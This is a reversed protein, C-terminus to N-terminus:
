QPHALFLRQLAQHGQSGRQCGGEATVVVARAVSGKALFTLPPMTPILWAARRPRAAVAAAPASTGICAGPTCRITITLTLM